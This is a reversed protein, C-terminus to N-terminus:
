KEVRGDSDGFYFATMTIFAGSLGGILVQLVDRSGSPLEVFSLTALMGAFMVVILVAVAFRVKPKDM